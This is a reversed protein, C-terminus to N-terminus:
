SRFIVRSPFYLEPNLDKGTMGAGGAAEPIMRPFSIGTIMAAGAGASTRTKWCIISAEGDRGASAKSFITRAGAGGGEATMRSGKPITVAGAPMLRGAIRM